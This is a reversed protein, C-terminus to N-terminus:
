VAVDTKNVLKGNMIWEGAPFNSPSRSVIAKM